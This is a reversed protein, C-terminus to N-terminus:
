TRFQSEFRSNRSGFFSSWTARIPTMPPPPKPSEPLARFFVNKKLQPRGKSSFYLYYLYRNFQKLSSWCSVLSSKIKLFLSTGKGSRGCSSWSAQTQGTRPCGRHRDGLRVAWGAPSFFSGSINRTRPLDHIQDLRSNHVPVAHHLLMLHGLPYLALILHFNSSSWWLLNKGWWQVQKSNRIKSIQHTFHHENESAPLSCNRLWGQCAFPIWGQPCRLNKADKM